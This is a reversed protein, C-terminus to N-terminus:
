AMEAMWWVGEEASARMQEEQLLEEVVLPVLRNKKAEHWDFDDM